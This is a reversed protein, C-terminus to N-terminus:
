RQKLIIKQIRQVTESQLRLVYLGASLEGQSTSERKWTREHYGAALPEECLVAVRNGKSDYLTLSVWQPLIGPISFAIHMESDAPNPYVPHLMLNDVAIKEKVYADDGFWVTFPASARAPVRYFTQSRMDVPKHLWEDWLMLQKGNNGFWSNDWRLEVMGEKRNTVVEFRWEHNDATPVIDRSYFIHNSKKRHNLEVFSEFRPLTFDDYVDHGETAKPHMGFGGLHYHVDGASLEILVEWEKSDLPHRSPSSIRGSQVAPNKYAPIALSINASSNVFGGSFKELITGDQWSGKYVRLKSVATTNNLDLIDQWSINYPYPNGIQNWGASLNISHPNDFYANITTGPGSDITTGARSEDVLLWYGNGPVISSSGNLEQTAGSQYRFMRWQSKDGYDGFDDGFVSNVAASTLTLPISVIRYKNQDKGFGDFPITLGSSGYQITVFTPSSWFYNGAVDELYFFYYIGQDVIQSAAITYSYTNGSTNTMDASIAGDFNPASLPGFLIRAKAIGSESDTFQATVTLPSGAQVSTAPTHSSISPLTSDAAPASTAQSGTLPNTTLYNISSGSGNYAFIAFHYNTSSSLGSNNFSTASGSYAVTSTGVSAGATYTTGDTPVETPASGAKRLAIYGAPSGSAATFSVSMSTSTVSNFSLNTPQATPESVPGSSQQYKLIVGNFGVAYGTNADTFHLGDLNSTIGSTQSTWTSGANDTKLITGSGGVAYGTNVDVFFVDYLHSLTWSTLGWNSGANTTKLVTGNYGVAYGNNADIFHVALLHTTTGSNLTSWTSGGNITKRITGNDGVAYGTSADTFYVDYLPNTTGSSQATWNAGGDTTKRIVGSSGTIYGVSADTFHVGWLWVSTGSTLTSWNTGGNTTKLVTGDQGVAYGTNADELNKISTSVQTSWSNGANVTKIITGLDGVAYGTNADTFFVRELWETTPSSLPSWGAPPSTTTQSGTLPNTTLYNTLVGTGNYAFVAIHYTTSATLGSNSFSSSNGVYAVISSGVTAGLTYAVGDTPTETPASGSKRLAIYGAPGGSAPTFSVSFSTSTVSSFSINTPQNVPEPAMTTQSGELPAATRYNISSGSGNFAFVDYHYPTGALLGSDDFTTASGSYVVTGDGLTSGAPYVTGDVPVGTPSGGQRRVVLYGNPNGSAATFSGTLSTTTINSFVLNTPQASPESALSSVYPTHKTGGYAGMDIRDGHPVPEDGVPDAPDGANVCPSNSPFRLDLTAVNIDRFLPDLSIDGTGATSNSGTYNFTNGYVDNYTRVSNNFANTVMGYSNGAVINNKIVPAGTGSRIEIGYSCSRITNNIVQAGGNTEIGAAFSSNVRIVINHTVLSGQEVKIGADTPIANGDFIFGDIMSEYADYLMVTSVGVITTKNNFIDRDKEAFTASYGGRIIVRSGTVLAENYSGTAVKITDGLASTLAKQITRYPAAASGDNSNNGSIAVHTTPNSGTPTASGTGGYAGMDIRGGNPSPEDGVPDAPNGSDICPSSGKLRFDGEPSNVFRPNASIDNASASGNTGSYNGYTNSYTCNYNASVGAVSIHIGVDNYATINNQVVTANNLNGLIYLSYFITGGGTLINNTISNNKIVGSAGSSVQIGVGGSNLFGFIGNHTVISHGSAIVIGRTAGSRGDIIFGDITSNGNDTIVTGSSPKLITKNQFFNRAADNFTGDYGGKIIRNQITITETYTGAAVKIIDGSVSQNLATQINRLPSAATGPNSDNGSTSVHLINQACVAPYILIFAIVLFRNM